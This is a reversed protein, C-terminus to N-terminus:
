TSCLTKRMVMKKIEEYTKCLTMWSSDVKWGSGRQYCERAGEGFQKFDLDDIYSLQVIEKVFNSTTTEKERSLALSPAPKSEIVMDKEKMDRTAADNGKGPPFNPRKYKRQTKERVNYEKESVWAMERTTKTRRM